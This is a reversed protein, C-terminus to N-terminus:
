RQQKITLTRIIAYEDVATKGMGVVGLLFVSGDVSLADQQTSTFEIM